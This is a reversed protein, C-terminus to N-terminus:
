NPDELPSSSKSLDGSGAFFRSIAMARCNAGPLAKSHSQKYDLAFTSSCGLQLAPQRFATENDIDDAGRVIAQRQDASSSVM